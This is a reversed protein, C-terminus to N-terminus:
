IPALACNIVILVFLHVVIILILKFLGTNTPGAFSLMERFIALLSRGSIELTVLASLSVLMATAQRLMQEHGWDEKGGDM